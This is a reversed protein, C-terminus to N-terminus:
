AVIDLFTSFNSVRLVTAVSPQPHRLELRAGRAHLKKAAMVLVRLGASSIYTVATFDLAVPVTLSSSAELLPVELQEANLGSIAGSVRIVFGTAAHEGQVQLSM